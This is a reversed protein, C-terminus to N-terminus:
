ENIDLLKVQIKNKLQILSSVGTRTHNQKNEHPENSNKM